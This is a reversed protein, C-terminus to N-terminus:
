GANDGEEPINPQKTYPAFGTLSPVQPDFFGAFPVFYSVSVGRRTKGRITKSSNDHAAPKSWRLYLLASEAGAQASGGIMATRAGSFAAFNVLYKTTALMSLHVVGFILLMLFMMMLLTETTSQGREGTRQPTVM